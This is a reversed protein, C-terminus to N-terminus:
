AQKVQVLADDVITQLTSEDAGSRALVVMGNVLATLYVSLRDADQVSIEGREAARVLPRRITDVFDQNATKLAKDILPDAGAMELTSNCRLCGDPMDGGTLRAVSAGLIRELVLVTDPEDQMAQTVWDAFKQSYNEIAAIFLGRKDGYSQYLSARAAGSAKVLDDLSTARYGNQWFTMMIADKAAADDFGKPRGRPRKKDQDIVKPSSM